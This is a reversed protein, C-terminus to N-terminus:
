LFRTTAYIVFNVILGSGVVFYWYDSNIAVDALRTGEFKDTFSIAIMILTEIWDTVLHGSHLGLLVWIASAYADDSWKCNLTAFEFIRVGIIAIGFVALLILGLRAASRNAKPAATQAIRAPIISMVLLITNTIGFTLAPPYHGPPWNTTRTRLYFYTALVLAFMTGEIMMFFVNALWTTNRQGFAVSPLGAVDLVPRNEVEVACGREASRSLSRSAVAM